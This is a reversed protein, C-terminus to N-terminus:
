SKSTASNIQKIFYNTVEEQEVRTLDNMKNGSAKQVAKQVKERKQKENLASWNNINDLNKIVSRQFPEHNKIQQTIKNSNQSKTKNKSTQQQNPQNNERYRKKAEESAILGWAGDVMAQGAQNNLRYLENLGRGVSALGQYALDKEGSSSQNINLGGPTRRGIVPTKEKNSNDKQENTKKIETDSSTDSSQESSQGSRQKTKEEQKPPEIGLKRQIFLSPNIQKARFVGANNEVFRVAEERSVEDQAKLKEYDRNFNKVQRVSETFVQNTPLDPNKAKMYNMLRVSDFTNQKAADRESPAAREGPNFENWAFERANQTETDDFGGSFDEGSGSGDADESVIGRSKAEELTITNERIHQVDAENEFKPDSWSSPNDRFFVTDRKGKDSNPLSAQYAVFEGTDPDVRAEANQMAETKFKLQKISDNKWDKIFSEPNSFATTLREYGEKINEKSLEVNKREDTLYNQWTASGDANETIVKGDRLNKNYVDKLIDKAEQTNGQKFAQLGTALKRRGEELNQQAKKEQLIHYNKNKLIANSQRELLMDGALKKAVPDADEPAIDNISVDLVGPMGNANQSEDPANDLAKQYLQRAQDKREWQQEKRERNKNLWEQRDAQAMSDQVTQGMSMLGQAIQTGENLTM